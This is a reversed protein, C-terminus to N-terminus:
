SQFSLYSCNWAWRSNTEQDPRYGSTKRVWCWQRNSFFTTHSSDSPLRWSIEFCNRCGTHRIWSSEKLQVLVQLLRVRQTRCHWSAKSPLGFLFPLSGLQGHKCFGQLATSGTCMVGFAPESTMRGGGWLFCHAACCARVFLSPAQVGYAAHSQVFSMNRAKRPIEQLLWVALLALPKEENLASPSRQSGM